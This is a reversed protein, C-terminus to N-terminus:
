REATRTVHGRVFPMHPYTTDYDIPGTTPEFGLAEAAAQVEQHEASSTAGGSGSSGSTPLTSM